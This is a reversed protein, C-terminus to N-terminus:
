GLKLKQGPKIGTGSLNNLKKLKDISLNNYQRSISWLTDGSRVTHTKSSPITQPQSAVSSRVTKKFYSSNKYISIKQGIRIVNNTSIRNWRRLDSARVHYREAIKGLVDGSKVRYVIREKGHTSSSTRKRKRYNQKETVKVSTLLELSDRNERIYSATHAPIKLSYGTMSAPVVNTLLEPNMKVLDDHCIGTHKALDELNTYKKLIITDSNMLDDNYDAELNHEAAFRMVYNVAMFQPVYSRTERPLYKYVEWFKKKYGSKRIARRVNGPGCNYAALAMEWDNFMSYLHKLYLCAAETSKEPDMREDMYGNYNLHYMKGTAPMFQWLGLAGVPSQAVPNIASEVVTLYKLADPMDHKKLMKEFMPFYATQRTLLKRTYDRNRISFYDIFGRVKRNFVIELDSDITAIRKQIISDPEDPAYDIYFVSDSKSIRQASVINISSIVGLVFIFSVIKLM